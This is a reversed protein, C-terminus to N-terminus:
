DDGRDAPTGTAAHAPVYAAHKPQAAAAHADTISQAARWTDAHAIATAYSDAYEPAYNAHPKTAWAAYAHAIRDANAAVADRYTNRETYTTPKTAANGSTYAHPRKDPM